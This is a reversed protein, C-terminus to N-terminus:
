DQSNTANPAYLACQLLSAVHIIRCASSNAPESNEWRYLLVQSQFILFTKVPTKSRAKKRLIGIPSCSDVVLETVQWTTFSLQETNAVAHQIKKRIIQRQNEFYVLIEVVNKNLTRRM